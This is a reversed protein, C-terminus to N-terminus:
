VLPKSEKEKALRKAERRARKRQAKLRRAMERDRKQVSVHAKKM